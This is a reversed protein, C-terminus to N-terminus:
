AKPVLKSRVILLLDTHVTALVQLTSACPLTTPEVILIPRILTQWRLDLASRDTRDRHLARMEGLVVREIVDCPQALRLFLVSRTQVRPLAAEASAPM